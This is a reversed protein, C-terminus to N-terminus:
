GARLQRLYRLGHVTSSGHWSLLRGDVLRVRAQPCLAQVEPEHDAHFAYPESSLWVEDVDALWPEDGALRPYRAAGAPGGELAPLTLGGARALLRAIYTDRAVTMWPERWILYLVSIPAIAAPQTAELEAALESQLAAAAADARPAFAARLQEILAAVDDPGNPHTVIVSPVFERLAQVTELRNEDVNVVVHTPSLRRLKALNVDKTGGIKPVASLLAAPHTCWGTRAVLWPALGLAALLETASPVLSAIRPDTVAVIRPHVRPRGPQPGSFLVKELAIRV